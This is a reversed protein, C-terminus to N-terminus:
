TGHSLNAVEKPEAKQESGSEVDDSWTMAILARISKDKKERKKLLPCEAKTHNPKKCEYCIITSEKSSKGKAEHKKGGKQKKKM